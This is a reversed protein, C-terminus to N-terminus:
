KSCRGNWGRLKCSDPNVHNYCETLQYRSVPAVRNTGAYM